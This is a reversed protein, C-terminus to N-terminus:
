NPLAVGASPSSRGFTQKLTLGFSVHRNRVRKEREIPEPSSRNPDFFLREREGTTNLVNDVDLTLSTRAAPRWEVFATGYPGGNYNTDIEDARFFSFRDRHNVTLGYSFAGADRRLEVGWEWDPFFDSFNRNTGSIPDNVRTHQLQGNLKLRTGTLGFRQLPADIQLSVFRRKGTGLNGPASFGDDTLIQDQLLSVRDIGADLKILGDGFIPRDLTGRVEWTRQPLLNANGGSVRDNSLEAFSIFDYFNLQAVTRRISFRTHWGGGPKWDIALNPKFFRLSREATADGSVNLTSFEYRLGGDVRLAPTLNRGANVYLEGRREKVKAQDIPLDRRVRDGNQNIVFLSLDNDLTNLAGEVGAEFTLGFVNSRTWGLKAITENLKSEQSQEFGGVERGGESLLRDRAIYADFNNRKRRTALGVLKIAGGALPRTIDGGVEFVPTRYKQILSDDHRAEGLESVRNRQTLDFRSPGWRINARIAKDQARELAYSGSLYPDRNFYSNVKRRAEFEAGDSLRTLVDTGEEVQRNRGTGASLNISSAGRKILASGSIDRNLYGTYLRRGAATVTADFGGEASLILNLVQTKGAYEAGYLAGAGVEVKAVRSAPIRALISELSDSKSSPRAGNFVVNGAAGAFGRVDSNGLDLTFGPVRRVIDLASRPAFQAFFGADYSTTRANPGEAVPARDGEAQQAAAVAASALALLAASSRLIIRTM